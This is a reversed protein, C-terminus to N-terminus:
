LPFVVCGRGKATVFIVGKESRFVLAVSFVNQARSERGEREKERDWFLYHRGPPKLGEKYHPRMSGYSLAGDM